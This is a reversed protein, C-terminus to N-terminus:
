RSLLVAVSNQWIIMVLCVDMAEGALAHLLPAYAAAEVKGGPYFVLVSDASPGDFFWGYDTEAVLVEDSRLAELAAQSARHCSGLYLICSLVVCGLVIGPILWLRSKRRTKM